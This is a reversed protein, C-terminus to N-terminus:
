QFNYFHQSCKRSELAFHASLNAEKMPFIPQQSLSALRRQGDLRYHQKIQKAKGFHSCKRPLPFPELIDNVTAHM